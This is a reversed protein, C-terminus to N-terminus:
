QLKETILSELSSRRAQRLLGCMCRGTMCLVCQSGCTRVSSGSGCSSSRRRCAQSGAAHVMGVLEGLVSPNRADVMAREIPRGFLQSPHRMFYQLVAPVAIYCHLLWCQLKCAHPSPRVAVFIFCTDDVPFCVLPQKYVCLWM